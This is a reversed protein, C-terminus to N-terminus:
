MCGAVDVTTTVRAANTVGFSNHGTCNGQSITSTSTSCDVQTTGSVMQNGEASVNETVRAPCTPFNCNALAVCLGASGNTGLSTSGVPTQLWNKGPDGAAGLDLQSTDEGATSNVGSILVGYVGNALMLSNRMKVVSGGYLQAGYNTNKWSVLGSINNTALGATGPTQNILLGAQTNGSCIVTGADSPIPSGPTGTVSVSGLSGVEIGNLANSSFLTGTGSANSINAAGGTIHLGDANSGTVTVGAGITLTGATVRIGDSSTNKITLNSISSTFTSTAPSNLIATGGTHSAGDLTLAAGTGGTIVSTNNNLQFLTTAPVTITVAGGTTTLTTNGPITIPYTEGAALGTLAPGVIIIQTGAFPSSPMVNLLKKLTKFACGPAVSGSAMDSGTATNDNGNVPDLYWKNNSVGDCVSCTHNVCAM